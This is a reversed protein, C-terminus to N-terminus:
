YGGSKEKKEKKEAPKTEAPKTEAKGAAPKTEAAAVTKADKAPEAPKDAAFVSGVGALFGAMAMVAILKKM